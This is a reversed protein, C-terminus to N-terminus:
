FPRLYLTLNEIIKSNLLCKNNFNADEYHQFGPIYFKANHKLCFSLLLFKIYFCLLSRRYGKLGFPIESFILASM